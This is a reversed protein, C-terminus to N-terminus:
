HWGSGTGGSGFAGSGPQRRFREKLIEKVQKQWELPSSGGIKFGGSLAYVKWFEEDWVISEASPPTNVINSRAILYFKGNGDIAGLDVCWARDPTGVNIYWNNAFDNVAIDYWSNANLGNFDMVNTVDYVRLVKKLHEWATGSAREIEKRKSDAVEWYAHTWWPDRVLLVIKNDGYGSPLGEEANKAPAPAPPAVPGVYFKTEEPAVHAKSKIAEKVPRSAKPRKAKEAKPAKIRKSIKKLAM